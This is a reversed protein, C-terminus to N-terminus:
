RYFWAGGFSSVELNSKIGYGERENHFISTVYREIIEQEFGDKDMIYAWPAGVLGWGLAYILGWNFLANLANSLVGIWVRLGLLNQTQLYKTLLGPVLIRWCCRGLGSRARLTEHM